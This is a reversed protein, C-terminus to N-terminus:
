VEPPCTWKVCTRLIKQVSPHRLASTRGGLACYAVRGQGFSRTWVLPQREGGLETYFHVRNAPDCTHSYVEDTLTFEPMCGFIADDAFTPRVRIKQAPGATVVRGGLLDAYGPEHPFSAAAAHIALLGGGMEVYHRLAALAAASLAEQQFYFVMGHQAGPPLGVLSELSPARRWRYGRMGQLLWALWFRGLLPPNSFGSSVLLVPAPM